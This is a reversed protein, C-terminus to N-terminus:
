SQNRLSSALFTTRRSAQTCQLREMAFVAAVLNIWPARHDARHDRAAAGNADPAYHADSLEQSPSECGGM